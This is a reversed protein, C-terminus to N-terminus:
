HERRPSVPSAAVGRGVAVWCVGGLLLGLLGYLSWVLTFGVSSILSAGVGVSVMRALALLVPILSFLSAQAQLSTKRSILATIHTIGLIEGMTWFVVFSLIWATHEFFAYAGFGIGYCMCAAALNTLTSFRASLAILPQTMLIVLLANVLGVAAFISAASDVAIVDLWLPLQYERQADLVSLAFFLAGAVVVIRPVDAMARLMGRRAEPPHVQRDPLALVLSALFCSVSVGAAFVMLFHSDLGLLHGGIVYLLAAGLNAALHLYGFAAIRNGDDVALSTLVSFVPTVLGACLMFMLVMAISLVPTSFLMALLLFVTSCLATGRLLRRFCCRSALAGGVLNGTLYFASVLTIVLAVAPSDLAYHRNFFLAAFPGLANAMVFLLRLVIVNRMAPTLAAGNFPRSM